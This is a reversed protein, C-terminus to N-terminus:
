FINFKINFQLHFHFKM